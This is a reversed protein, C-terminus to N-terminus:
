KRVSYFEYREYLSDPFLKEKLSFFYDCLNDYEEDHGSISSFEILLSKINVYHLYADNPRNFYHNLESYYKKKIHNYTM